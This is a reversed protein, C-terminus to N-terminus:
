PTGPSQLGIYRREGGSPAVILAGSGPSGSTIQVVFPRWPSLDTVSQGNVTVSVLELAFRDEVWTCSAEGQRAHTLLCVVAVGLASGVRGRTARMPDADPEAAACTLGGV